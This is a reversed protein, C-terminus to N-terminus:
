FHFCFWSSCSIFSSTWHTHRTVWYLTMNLIELKRLSVLNFFILTFQIIWHRCLILTKQEEASRTCTNWSVWHPSLSIFQHHFETCTWHCCKTVRHVRYIIIMTIENTRLSSLWGSPFHPRVRVPHVLICVTWPPYLSINKNWHIKNKIKTCNYINFCSQHETRRWPKQGKISNKKKQM